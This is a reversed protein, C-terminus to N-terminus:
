GRGRCRRLRGSGLSLLVLVLDSGLSLSLSISLLVLVPDSGLSLSHSLSLLVLVLDSGLSLRLSLSLRASVPRWPPSMRRWPRAMFFM